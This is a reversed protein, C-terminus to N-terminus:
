PRGGRFSAFESFYDYEDDEKSWDICNKCLKIKSFKREKHLKRLKRIEESNWIDEICQKKLDGIICKESYDHCCLVVKGKYDIVMKFWLDACHTRIERRNPNVSDSMTMLKPLQYAWSNLWTILVKCGIKKWKNKFDDIEHKNIHMEILQVLIEPKVKNGRLNIFNTINEQVNDFNANRRIQEYTEKSNGDLCLIIDDLGSSMLKESILKTLMTANTSLIVRAQTRKKCLEIMQTLDSHLLPEGRYYLLITKASDKIQKIINEFLCFDMFGKTNKNANPCMVCNLNCANTPEIIYIAPLIKEKVNVSRYAQVVHGLNTSIPNVSMHRGNVMNNDIQCYM